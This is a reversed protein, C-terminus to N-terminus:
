FLLLWKWLPVFRIKRGKLIEEGEYDWTICLLNKCNLEKGAKLLAKIERREIEDKGSAYTVQVLQKIKVGEKIVFDVERQQYDKWYYFGLLPNQNTKRLLDLFVVNEMKKGIDESFGLVRSLGTDVIYTKKPWSKRAYVSLSFNDVFFVSLTDIINEIYHYITKKSFPTRSKLYTEISKISIEKSFNQFMFEFLLRGMEISKIEHREVFDKLFIEDFYTKLLKEKQFTNRSLVIEPFAGFNLYERLFKLIRGTEEFTPFRDARFKKTTLFERFSFPLLLFSLSRGRLQTAIERSLLKSSSGTVVLEYGYDLLTRLLTEWNKIEQIEDLLLVRPNYGKVENHIKIIDFIEEPLIKKLFLLEFNLYLAKPYKQNLLYLMYFTKGARRPGIISTIKGKVRMLKLEREFGVFRKERKIYDIVGRRNIM